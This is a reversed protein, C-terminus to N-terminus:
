CVHEPPHKLEVDHSRKFKAFELPLQLSFLTQQPTVHKRGGGGGVQEADQKPDDFPRHGPEVVGAEPDQGGPPTHQRFEGGGGGGGGVQEPVHITPEPFPRHGPEVM